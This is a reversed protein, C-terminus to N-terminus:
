GPAQRQAEAQRSRRWHEADGFAITGRLRRMGAAADGRLYSVIATEVAKTKSKGPSHAMLADMLADDLELTTRM